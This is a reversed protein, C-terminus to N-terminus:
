GVCPTFDAPYWYGKDPNRKSQKCLMKSKIQTKDSHDVHGLICNVPLTTGFAFSKGPPITPQKEVNTVNYAPLGCSIALSFSNSGSFYLERVEVHYTQLRCFLYYAFNFSDM